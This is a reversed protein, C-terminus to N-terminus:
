MYGAATDNPGSILMNEMQFQYLAYVTEKTNIGNLEGTYYGKAKLVYQLIRV